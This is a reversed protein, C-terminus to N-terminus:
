RALSGRLYPVVWFILLGATVFVGLLVAFRGGALTKRIERPDSEAAPLVFLRARRAREEDTVRTLASGIAMATVNCVMGVIAPDLYVPLSAGSLAVYLRVAFYSVFGTLMGCFAGTKTVRASFVSALAVPMWSSAVIASGLYMIWFISPPNTVALALVALAAAAMAARGARISAPGKARLIDNAVSAGILSLFTTASSIGASLVGVLLVVGLGMPMLEMAAWIMVQSPDSIQPDTLNLLVGSMCALLEVVFVGVAAWVGARTIVQENRAMQYRSSQWPGVMCVSMWVVGYSVAWAINEWGSAYLAEPVGKWSLLDATEPNAAIQEIGHFWGGVSHSISLAALVLALTFVCAMLTDTILVGRSGSMVTIATFVVLALVICAEYGLGTVMSMLTGIGQMVSLLYVSMMVVATVAALVRLPQSCFREGFFEPITLASSRRLYRGFFVSGIIYGATQMIAPIILPGFIGAYSEAVDGMFLGVGIYSAIISGAILVVPAQRGAVYFDEASRVKRSVVASVAMFVALAACMGILYPNM